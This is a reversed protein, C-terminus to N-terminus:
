KHKFVKQKLEAIDTPMRVWKPDNYLQEELKDVRPTLQKLEQHDRHDDKVIKLIADLKRNTEQHNDKMEARLIEESGAILGGMHEAANAVDGKTAPQDEFPAEQKM